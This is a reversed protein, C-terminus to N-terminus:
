TNMLGSDEGEDRTLTEAHVAAHRWVARVHAGPGEGSLRQGPVCLPLCVLEGQDMKTNM